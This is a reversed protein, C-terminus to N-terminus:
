GTSSVFLGVIVIHTADDAEIQPVLVADDSRGHAASDVDNQVTIGVAEVRLHAVQKSKSREGQLQDDYKCRRAKTARGSTAQVASNRYKKRRRESKQEATGATKARPPQQPPRFFRASAPWGFPSSRGAGELL